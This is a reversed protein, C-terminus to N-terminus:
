RVIDEDVKKDEWDLIEEKFDKEEINKRKNKKIDYFVKNSNLKRQKSNISAQELKKDIKKQYENEETLNLFEKEIEFKKSHASMWDDELETEIFFIKQM